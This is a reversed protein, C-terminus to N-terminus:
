KASQKEVTPAKNLDVRPSITNGAEEGIGDIHLSERISDQMREKRQVEEKAHTMNVAIGANVARSGSFPAYASKLIEGYAYEGGPVAAALANKMAAAERKEAGSKFPHLSKWWLSRGSSVADLAKVYSAIEVCRKSDIGDSSLAENACLRMQKISLEGSKYKESSLAVLNSPAEKTLRELYELRAVRDMGVYPSHKVTIEAENVYPRILTYEFDDLMAEAGLNDSKGVNVAELAQKYMKDFTKKYVERWGNNPNLFTYGEARSEFIAFNFDCFYKANFEKASNELAKSVSM